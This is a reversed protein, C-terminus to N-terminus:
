ENKIYLLKKIDFLQLIVYVGIRNQRAEVQHAIVFTTDVLRWSGWKGLMRRQLEIM